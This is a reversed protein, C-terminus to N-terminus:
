SFQVATAHNFTVVLEKLRSKFVNERFTLIMQLPVFVILSYFCVLSYILKGIQCSTSSVVFYGSNTNVVSRMLKLWFDTCFVGLSKLIIFCFTSFNQSTETKKSKYLLLDDRCQGTTFLMVYASLLLLLLFPWIQVTQVIFRWLLLVCLLM